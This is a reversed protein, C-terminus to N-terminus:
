EHDAGMANKVQIDWMRKFTPSSHPGDKALLDKRSAFAEIKGKDMVLINDAKFLM